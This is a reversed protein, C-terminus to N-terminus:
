INVEEFLRLTKNATDEWTFSKARALGKHSLSNRLPEDEILKMASSVEKSFISHDIDM